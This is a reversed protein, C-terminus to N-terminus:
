SEAQSRADDVLRSIGQDLSVRPVFDLHRQMRSIDAVVNGREYLSATEDAIVRLVPERGVRRAARQAIDGFSTVESGAINLVDDTDLDLCRVTAEVADSIHMPNIAPKRSRLVKIPEGRIARRVIEPIKNPTGPGYPYFYRLVIKRFTGPAGQVALEAQAKTVSYLDMPNPGDEERFPHDSSGYIGGTSAHVFVRAGASRAYALLRWTAVVNVLFPEADDQCADTFLIAALHVVADLRRPLRGPDLPDRLDQQVVTIDRQPTPRPQRMLAFVEHHEGLGKVLHGGIFGSSGTVLVRL